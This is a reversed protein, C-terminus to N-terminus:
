DAVVRLPAIIILGLYAATSILLTLVLAAWADLVFFLAILLVSFLAPAAVALIWGWVPGLELHAGCAPCAVPERASIGAKALPAIVRAGCNPCEANFNM